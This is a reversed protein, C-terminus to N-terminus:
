QSLATMSATQLFGCFKRDLTPRGHIRATLYVYSEPTEAGFPAAHIQHLKNPPHESTTGICLSPQALTIPM